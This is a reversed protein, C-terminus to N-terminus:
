KSLKQAQGMLALLEQEDGSTNAADKALQHVKEWAWNTAYPSQRMKEAFAGVAVALRFSRSAESYDKVFHQKGLRYETETAKAGQPAKHRIRVITPTGDFSKNLKLEYLATVQHGAGIEGADVADNRFDKDAIDRNEYGILRYSKVVAPDFEVQIKVDKAIVQLTGGLQETFIRRAEKFSDIYYYNGNGKNALQEMMTDKYNGMGLGITSLTVGELTYHGIRKLIGEHSDQGVNADGDSLVLIRNIHGPKLTKYAMKYATELGDAMATSGGAMIQEIAEHIAARKDMSTPQIVETVSGAYTCIGVTDGEKLQNVLMHMSQKALGIKDPSSMSGSTDILFVLHAPKRDADSVRRGQVGVRLMVTDKTLPSPAAEFAVAFPIEGDPQPYDYKFFNVFEEVRVARAPPLQNAKLKRRAITYAGTDVDVSFTSLKDKNPDIFKNIGYDKYDESNAVPDPEPAPPPPSVPKPKPKSPAVRGGKGTVRMPRKSKAGPKADKKAMERKVMAPEAPPAEDDAEEMEVAMKDDSKVGNGGRGTGAVAGNGGRGVGANGENTPKAAPSKQTSTSSEKDANGKCGVVLLAGLMMVILIHGPYRM